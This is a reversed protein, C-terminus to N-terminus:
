VGEFYKISDGAKLEVIAKKILPTQYLKMGHRKTTPKINLTNVSKVTVGFIEEVAKRIEIKNAKRDVVFTYRNYERRIIESKENVLPKKIIDYKNM